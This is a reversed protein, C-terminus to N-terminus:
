SLLKEMLTTTKDGEIQLSARLLVEIGETSALSERQAHYLIAKALECSLESAKQSSLLLSTLAESVEEFKSQHIKGLINAIDM